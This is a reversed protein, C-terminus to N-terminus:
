RDAATRLWTELRPLLLLPDGEVEILKRRDAAGAVLTLASKPVKWAAALWALAAANARGGEPPAAVALRLEARGDVGPAVDLFRTRSSKPTLRVQVRVGRACERFPSGPADSRM